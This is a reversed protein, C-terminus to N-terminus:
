GDRQAEIRQSAREGPFSPKNKARFHDWRFGREVRRAPIGAVTTNPPVNKTAVAGAGVTAWAGVNVGPLVTSGLAILAGEGVSAGGSLCAAAVHVFDGVTCDHDVSARTNIIVHSGIGAFPQVIAGACIVTGVGISVDPHIWSFPHVATFWDVDIQESLQKRTDNDGIGIIAHTCKNSTLESAPGLVPFGFIKSGWKKPDDDYFGAIRHGAAILISAVVKGHGGAGIVAIRKRGTIVNRRTVEISLKEIQRRLARIANM